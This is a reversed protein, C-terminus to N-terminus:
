TRVEGNEAASALEAEPPAAGETAGGETAVWKPSESGGSSIFKTYREIILREYGM